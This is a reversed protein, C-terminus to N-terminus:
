RPGKSGAPRTAPEHPPKEGAAAADGRPILSVSNILTATLSANNVFTNADNLGSSCELQVADGSSIYFIDTISAQTEGAVIVGNANGSSGGPNGDVIGTDATTPWCAAGNDRYDIFLLASASIFYWGATEIPATQAVVTPSGLPIYQNAIAAYGVSIGAPGQPGTPGAPGQLGQPGPAGAPGTAGKPGGPGAPGQPGTENWQIKHSGSKCAKGATVIIIDGTSNNVCAHYTVTAANVRAPAALSLVLAMGLTSAGILRGVNKKEQAFDEKAIRKM